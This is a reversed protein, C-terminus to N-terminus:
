KFYNIGGKFIPQPEFDPINRGIEKKVREAHGMKGMVRGDPSTIGEIAWYSGNPNYLYDMTPKGEPDVYQTAIQGNALLKQLNEEDAIFRGEGHSVPIKYVEGVKCESFWPSLTSCVKTNIIRAVHHGCYNYTLTPSNPTQEIIEGYPVLGLKILAQFGNCIGIGLGDRKYLLEMVAEKIAPNHFAASIFKGSGEPEDGASFGGPFAIIQAQSIEKVFREVTENIAATNLNRFVSISPAGGSAIFAAATDNECNTGPFAPIFVRPKAFKDHAVINCKGEFAIEPAAGTNQEPVFEPYIKSLTSQWATKAEDLTIISGNVSIEAKKQTRGLYEYIINETALTTYLVEPEIEGDLELIISGIEPAFLLDNEWNEGFSFGIDNGFCMYSLAAAIGGEGVTQAALVKNKRILKNIFSFTRRTEDWNPVETIDCTIPLLLVHSNTKKFEPSTIKNCDDIVSMAFSILTPPVSIDRFTGSMSDKGGIAPAQLELQAEIAGLLAAAPKGWREPEKNLKEFYEQLSLRIKDPDAGMAICKAYSETIAYIAGHYPSWKALSPCYGYAMITSTKTDRAGVPLKAAMGLAPTLQNKGGYPQLITGAGITNDFYETLGKQSCNNLKKLNDLWAEKVKGEEKEADIKLFFNDEQSVPQICVEAFQKVGNTNLFERSIDVITNGHHKMILRPEETVVAVPTAELNEADALELFRELNEASLVVAMREQSESIALETGTLGEYKKPVKDLNIELGDCLEGCAVSVGGAGFDNCRKIMKAAEPTSFLRQLKRETPANGKQVEAGCTDLSSENHEKSSGTAGGCGDRGTKGGLLVILDGPAPIERVVNEAPAAAMVAGVEMRKAIFGEDFIEKVQGTALGIQNGYSSFGKAAEKSIKSQPLKGKLTTSVPATIDGAGTIRMSQYVYSRGSLPDRIAGGLCTAAGGFPEIETPHNHTENKFMVLWDEEKGDIVAKAKVSCANIEDSIDLDNVVGDKRLKKAAITAMDMLSIDKHAAIENHLSLYRDLAKQLAPKFAGESIEIKNLVTNFTTHRCHDSWYTDLVRIETETPNRKEANKFYDGLFCFDELSMALQMTEYLAKRADDNLDIFGEIPKIDAPQEYTMKLSAPKELSTEMSDLPNICYEKIVTFEQVSINGYLAIIKSCRVIIDGTEGLLQLCQLASDARQDFQGPLYQTAFVYVNNLEPLEEEFICDIPPEGFVTNLAAQYGADTINEVDYCNFIRVQELQEIQLQQRINNCLQHAEVAYDKQKEVMIRRINSM